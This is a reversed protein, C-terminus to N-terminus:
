LYVGKKTGETQEPIIELGRETGKNRNIFLCDCRRIETTGLANEQYVVHRVSATELADAVPDTLNLLVRVHVDVLNEDSVLAVHEVFLYDARFFSLLERRFETNGKPLARGLRVDIDVLGKLSQRRGDFISEHRISHTSGGTFLSQMQFWPLRASPLCSLIAALNLPQKAKASAQNIIPSFSKKPASRLTESVTPFTGARLM